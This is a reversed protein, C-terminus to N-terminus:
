IAGQNQFYGELHKAFSGQTIAFIEKMESIDCTSGGTFASVLGRANYEGSTLGDAIGAMFYALKLPLFIFRVKKNLVKSFLDRLEVFTYEEEGAVEVIRRSAKSNDLADVMCRALDEPLIPRVKEERKMFMPAWGKKKLRNGLLVSMDTALTTVRFITYDLGSVQLLDEVSKKV